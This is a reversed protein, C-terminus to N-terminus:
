FAITKQEETELEGPQPRFEVFSDIVTADQWETMDVVGDIKKAITNRNSAVSRHIAQQAHLWFPTSILFIFAATEYVCIIVLSSHFEYFTAQLQILFNHTLIKALYKPSM